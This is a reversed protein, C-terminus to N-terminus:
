FWIWMFRPLTISIVTGKVIDGAQDVLSKDLEEVFSLEGQAKEESMISIVEKIIMLNVGATKLAHILVSKPLESASEILYTKECRRCEDYLKKTNATFDAIIVM